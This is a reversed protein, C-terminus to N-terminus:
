FPKDMLQSKKCPFNYGYRRILDGVINNFWSDSEFPTTYINEILVNLDVGLYEGNSEKFTKAGKGDSNEKDWIVARLENEYEFSKRKWLIRYFLNGSDISDTDHDKYEVKGIYISYDTNSLSEKLRGFTSQLAIGRKSYNRWFAESEFNSIHWCSVAFQGRVIKPTDEKEIKILTQRLEAPISKYSEEEFHMKPSFGEWPDPFKEPKIFFISSKELVDCFKALDMFRWIKTEDSVPKFSPHEKYM